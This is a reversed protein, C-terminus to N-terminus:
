FFLIIYFTSINFLFILFLSALHPDVEKWFGRIKKKLKSFLIVISDLRIKEEWKM